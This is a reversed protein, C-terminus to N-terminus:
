EWDLYNYRFSYDIQNQTLWNREEPLMGVQPLEMLELCLANRLNKMRSDFKEWELEEQVSDSPILEDWWDKRLISHVDISYKKLETDFNSGDGLFKNKISQLNTYSNALFFYLALYVRRGILVNKLNSKLPLGLDKIGNVGRVTDTNIANKYYTYIHNASVSIESEYAKWGYNRKLIYEQRHKEWNEGLQKSAIDIEVIHDCKQRVVDAMMEWQVISNQTELHQKKFLHFDLGLVNRINHVNHDSLSTLAFLATFHNKAASYLVEYGQLQWYTKKTFNEFLRWDAIIGTIENIGDDSIKQIAEEANGTIILEEFYEKLNEEIKKLFDPDDEIVLIKHKKDPNTEPSMADSVLTRECERILKDAATSFNAANLINESLQKQFDIWNLANLQINTLYAATEKLVLELKESNNGLTNFQLDHTLKDIVVGKQDHLMENMDTLVAETLPYKCLNGIAINLGKDLENLPLFSIGRGFLIKYKINESALNEFYSQKLTSTIIIPCLLKHKRRLDSAIDFGYFHQLYRGQWGLEALIIIARLNDKNETIESLDNESLIIKNIEISPFLFKTEEDLIFIFETKSETEILNKAKAM